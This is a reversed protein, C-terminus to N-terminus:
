LSPATCLAQRCFFVSQVSQHILLPIVNTNPSWKVQPRHVRIHKARKVSFSLFRSHTGLSFRPADPTFAYTNPSSFEIHKFHTDSTNTAFNANTIMPHTRRNINYVRKYKWLLDLSVYSFASTNALRVQLRTHTAFTHRIHKSFAKHKPRFRQRQTDSIGPGVEESRWNKKSIQFAAKCFM